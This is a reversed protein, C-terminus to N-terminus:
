KVTRLFDLCFKEAIMATPANTNGSTIRPMVSADVVYLREIGKLRLHSDVVARADAGMRCTGVPHFLTTGIDGAGKVLDSHSLQEAGPRWETPDYPALAPQAMIRRTLQISQVAVEQDGPTSLYNPRIEPSSSPDSNTILSSGRSEP